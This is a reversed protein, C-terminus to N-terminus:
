PMAEISLKKTLMALDQRYLNKPGTPLSFARFLSQMQRVDTGITDLEIPDSINCLSGASSVPHM